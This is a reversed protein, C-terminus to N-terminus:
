LWNPAIETAWLELSRLMVDHPILGSYQCQLLYEPDHTKVLKEIKRNIDDPTGVWELGREVLTGYDSGIPGTEGVNRLAETFGMPGFWNEFIFGGGRSAWHHAEDADRAVLVDKMVGIREGRRLTGHGAAEAEEQYLDMLRGVIRDDTNMLIPVVGERACFRFTDESFSFPQFVPPHPRQYPKPAIGVEQVVGNQDVGRGYKRVAEYPFELDKVPITWQNGSHSFTETTWAKKLIEWHEEFLTRNRRDNDSADSLTGGVGYVQGMVEAWRKQFGRAIGVFTRGRTMHDLMALDEALRLPNHFPLINAMQGVRIHKTQMALYLGLMIPNNSVEFGEVHFHHETFSLGWYGLEDAAQAQRTLQWLMNQYNRPNVGSMGRLIQDHSGATPLYFLISKM